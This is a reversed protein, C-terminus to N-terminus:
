WSQLGNKGSMKLLDPRGTHWYAQEDKFNNLRDDSVDSVFEWVTVLKRKEFLNCNQASGDLMELLLFLM